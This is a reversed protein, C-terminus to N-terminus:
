FFGPKDALWEELCVHEIFFTVLETQLECLQM